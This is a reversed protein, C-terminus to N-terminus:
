QAFHAALQGGYEVIKQYGPVSRDIMDTFVSAVNEDFEFKEIKEHADAFLKDRYNKIVKLVKCQM